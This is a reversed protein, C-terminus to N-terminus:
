LWNKERETEFRNFLIAFDRVGPRPWTLSKSIRRSRINLVMTSHPLKEAASLVRPMLREAILRCM